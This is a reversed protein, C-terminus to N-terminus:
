RVFRRYLGHHPCHRGDQTCSLRLAHRRDRSRDVGAGRDRREVGGSNGLGGRSTAHRTKRHSYLSVCACAPLRVRTGVESRTTACTCTAARDPTSSSRTSSSICAELAREPGRWSCHRPGFLPHKRALWHWVDFANVFPTGASRDATTEGLALSGTRRRSPPRDVNTSCRLACHYAPV